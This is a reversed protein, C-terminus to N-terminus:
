TAFCTAPTHQRGWSDSQNTSRKVIYLSVLSNATPSQSFLLMGLAYGGNSISYYSDSFKPPIPQLSVRSPLSTSTEGKEHEGRPIAYNEMGCYIGIVFCLFGAFGVLPWVVQSKATHSETSPDHYEWVQTDVSKSLFDLLRFLRFSEQDGNIQDNTTRQLRNLTSCFSRQSHLELLLYWAQQPSVTTPLEELQQRLEEFSDELIRSIM